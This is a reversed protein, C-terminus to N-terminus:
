LRYAVEGAARTLALPLRAWVKSPLSEEDGGGVNPNRRRAADGVATRRDSNLIYIYETVPETTWQQKFRGLSSDAPANGFDFRELGREIAWRMVFWYLAHNPRMQLAERDSGNYLLEVTGGHIHFLGGAVTRGGHDVMFLRTSGRPALLLLDERMQRYPRPLARHERMTALYLRYFARLDHESTSERVTLGAKEAKNISRHLNNSHKRLRTRLAAPDDGLEAIWTVQTQALGLGPVLDDLGEDRSLWVWQTAGTEDIARAAAAALERLGERTRAIPGAPPVVAPISRLRKGTLPGRSVFMPLVGELEGGPGELAMYRPRYGYAARLIRSWASLQYVSAGPASDVFADWRRDSCPDIAVM